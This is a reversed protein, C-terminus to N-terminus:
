EDEEKKAALIEKILDTKQRVNAMLVQLREDEEDLDAGKPQYWKNLIQFQYMRPKCYNRLNVGGFVLFGDICGSSGGRNLSFCHSWRSCPMQGYMAIATWEQRNLNFMCIDNLAVNQTKSFITDNRGGYIVLHHHKNWDKFMTACHMIRPCPPKGSFKTIKKTKINIVHKNHQIYELSSKNLVVENEEHHADIVWLDNHM